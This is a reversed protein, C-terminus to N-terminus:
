ILEKEPPNELRTSDHALVIGDSKKKLEIECEAKERESHYDLDFYCNPCIM